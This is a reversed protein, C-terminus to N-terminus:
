ATCSFKRTEKLGILCSIKKSMRWTLTILHPRLPAPFSRRFLNTRSSCAFREPVSSQVAIRVLEGDRMKQETKILDRVRVIKNSLQELTASIKPDINDTEDDQKVHETSGNSYYSTYCLDSNDTEATGTTDDLNFSHAAADEMDTRNTSTTPSRHRSPRHSHTTVGGDQSQFPVVSTIVSCSSL